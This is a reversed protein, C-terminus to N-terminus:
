SKQNLISLAKDPYDTILGDVKKKLLFDAILKEDNVTWVIVPKRLIHMRKTYGFKMLLYHPSVFDPRTRIIRFLPFLEFLRSLFGFRPKGVGLLLGTKINSDIKKVKRLQRDVFSRIFFQDYRLYKKIINIIDEEYGEEKLEIDMFVKNQFTELVDILKPIIFGKANVYYNAEAYTLTNFKIGDINDDHTIILVNDKSRRVDFEIGDVGLEIAKQFALITNEHHYGSAGRHATIMQKKFIM